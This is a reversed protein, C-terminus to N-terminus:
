INIHLQFKARLKYDAQIWIICRIDKHKRIPISGHVNTWFSPSATNIGAPQGCWTLFKFTVQIVFLYKREHKSKRPYDACGRLLCIYSPWHSVKKSQFVFDSTKWVDILNYTSRLCNIICRRNTWDHMLTATSNTEGSFTPSHKRKVSSNRVSGCSWMALSSLNCTHPDQIGIHNHSITLM